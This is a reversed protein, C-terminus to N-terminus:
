EPLSLVESQGELEVTVHKADIAVVLVSGIGEGVRLVQGNILASSRPGDWILGQLKLSPFVVSHQASPVQKACAVPLARPHQRLVGLSYLLAGSVIALMGWYRASGLNALPHEEAAQKIVAPNGRNPEPRKVEFLGFLWVLSGLLGVALCCLALRPQIAPVYSLAATEVIAICGLLALSVGVRV